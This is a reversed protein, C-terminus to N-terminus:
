VKAADMVTTMPIAVVRSTIGRFTFGTKPRYAGHLAALAPLFLSGDFDRGRTWDAIQPHSFPSAILLHPTERHDASLIDPMDSVRLGAIALSKNAIARYNIDRLAFALWDFLLQVREGARPLWNRQLIHDLAEVGLDAAPMGMLLEDNIPTAGVIRHGDPLTLGATQRAQDASAAAIHLKRRLTREVTVAFVQM